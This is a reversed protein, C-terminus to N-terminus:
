IIRHFNHGVTLHPLYWPLPTPNTNDTKDTQYLICYNNYFEIWMKVYLNSEVLSTLNELCEDLSYKSTKHEELYFLPEVRVTVEVLIGFMGINVQAAKFLTTDADNESVTM